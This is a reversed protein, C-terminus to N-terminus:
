PKTAEPVVATVKPDRWSGEIKFEKTAAAIVPRRLVLQALYTAAGVIPNVIAALLSVGGANIDPLVLVRLNQTEKALDASGEMSVLALVSKMQMNQSSMVGEQILADGGLSDFAFGESFVDRFDLTLRRPLSQLSLVSLLRGVGPEAKLFQGRSMDLKIQGTLSPYHLALPSGLWAVRGQLTGKGDKITGPLGLRKLLAGSDAVDFNFQLDVHRSAAKGSWVGTAKLTAEPTTLNLKQLRWEQQTGGLLHTTSRQNVAQIDLRGLKKGVLEFNEVNIDLAPMTDPAQSLLDEVQAKSDADPISLRALRGYLQAERSGERPRFEFYGNFNTAQANIRWNSATRSANVIVQRLTRNAVQLTQVQAQVENPFYSSADATTDRSQVALIPALFQQWATTDLQELRLNALVGREPLKAKEGVGIGIGGRLVRAQGNNLERIFEIDATNGLTLAIRDQMSTNRSTAQPSVPGQEYRLPLTADASKAFPAPLNLQLGALDSEILLRVGNTQPTIQATYAVRGKAYPLATAVLTPISKWTTVAETTASGTATLLQHTGALRVEGGLATAQLNRLQFGTENFSIQGKLNTLPPINDNLTFDNGRLLGEGLFQVTGAVKSQALAGIPLNLQLKVEAQGTARSTTLIQRTLGKLPTTNVLELFNPMANKAQATVEVIPKRLDAIKIQGRLPLGAFTADVDNLTLQMRHLDFHAKARMLRPWYGSPNEGLNPDRQDFVFQADSIKGQIRFEGLNPDVFPFDKPVGELTFLVDHATGAEFGQQLYVRATQPIKPPLYRHLAPLNIRSFRGKLSLKQTRKKWSALLEGTADTNALTTQVELETQDNTWNQLRINWQEAAGNLLSEDFTNSLAPLLTKLHPALASLQLREGKVTLSENRMDIHARIPGALKPMAQLHVDGDLVQGKSLSVWTEIQAIGNLISARSLWPEALYAQFSQPRLAQLRAYASGSWADFRSAHTEFLPQTFRGIVQIPQGWQAPPTADLRLQHSRPGNRLVLSVDRFTVPAQHLWDDRWHVLGRQVVIETQSFLWDLGPHTQTNASTKINLGAVAWQGAADRLVDLEPTDIVLQELSMSLISTPSVTVWVRGLQLTTQAQADLLKVDQLEFSPLLGQSHAQIQGIQVPIGIQQSVFQEIRPRLSDVHPVIWGYLVGGFVLVLALCAIVLGLFGTAFGHWLKFGIRRLTFRSPTTLTQQM